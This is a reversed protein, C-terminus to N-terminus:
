FLALQVPAGETTLAVLGTGKLHVNFLGGALMGAAGGKVKTIDRYFTYKYTGDGNDVLAGINDTTPRTPVEGTTTTPSATVIYSVWKSPAGNAGPVLKAM